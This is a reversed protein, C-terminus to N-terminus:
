LALIAKRLHFQRPSNEITGFYNYETPTHSVDQEMLRIQRPKLWINPHYCDGHYAQTICMMLFLSPMHNDMTMM